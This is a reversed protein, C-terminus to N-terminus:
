AWFSIKPRESSTANLSERPPSESTAAAPRGSKASWTSAMEVSEADPSPQDGQEFSDARLRAAADYLDQVRRSADAAHRAQLLASRDSNPVALANHVRM